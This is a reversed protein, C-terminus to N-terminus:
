LTEYHAANGGTSTSIPSYNSSVTFYQNLKSPSFLYTMACLALFNFLHFPIRVSKELNYDKGINALSSLIVLLPLILFWVLVLGGYYVYFTRKTTDGEEIHSSRLSWAFYALIVFRFILLMIGPATGWSFTPPINMNEDAMRWIFLSLWVVILVGVVILFNRRDHIESRSVYLGKAIVIVILIFLVQAVNDLIQGFIRLGPAGHGNHAYNTYHIFNCMNGVAYLVVVATFVKVLLIYSGTRRLSFVFFLHVPVLFLFFIFFSLFLGFYGQEDVSFQETWKGPPNHFTITYEIEHKTGSCDTIAVYWPHIRGENIRITDNMQKVPLVPQKAAKTLEECSMSKHHKWVYKWPETGNNPNQDDYLLLTLGSLDGADLKHIDFFVTKTKNREGNFWFYSLPVWRNDTDLTVKGNHVKAQSVAILAIACLLALVLSARM